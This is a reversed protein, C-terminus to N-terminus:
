VTPPSRGSQSSLLVFFHSLNAEQHNRVSQLYLSASVFSWYFTMNGGALCQKTHKQFKSKILPSHSGSNYISFAYLKLNREQFTTTRSNNGETIPFPFLQVGEGGSFFLGILVSFIFIWRTSNQRRKSPFVGM